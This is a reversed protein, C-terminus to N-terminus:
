DGEGVFGLRAATGCALLFWLIDWGGFMETFGMGPLAFTKYVGYKGLVVM